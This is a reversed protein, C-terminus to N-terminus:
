KCGKRQGRQRVEDETSFKPKNANRMANRRAEDAIRMAEDEPNMTDDGKRFNIKDPYSEKNAQELLSKIFNDREIQRKLYYERLDTDDTKLSATKLSDEDYTRLSIELNDKIETSRPNYNRPYYHTGTFGAELYDRAIFFEGVANWSKMEDPINNFTTRIKASQDNFMKKPFTPMDHLGQCIYCKNITEESYHVIHYGWFGFIFDDFCDIAKFCINVAPQLDQGTIIKILWVPFKIFILYLTHGILDIFYYLSCYRIHKIKDVGCKLRSGIYKTFLNDIFKFVYRILGIFTFIDDFGKGLLNFFTLMENKIGFGVHDFGQGINYMSEPIQKEFLDRLTNNFKIMPGAIDDGLKIFPKVLGDFCFPDKGYDCAEIIRERFIQFITTLLIVGIISILFKHLYSIKM